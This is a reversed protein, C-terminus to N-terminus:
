YFSFYVGTGILVTVHDLLGQTYEKTGDLPDVWVTLDGMSVSSWEGPCETKMVEEDVSRVIMDQSVQNMDLDGEEGVVKLQPFQTILSGLICDQASRDAATQVDDAGTKEVIGLEGKKFM